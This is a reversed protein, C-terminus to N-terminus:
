KLILFNEIKYSLYRRASYEGKDIQEDNAQLDWKDEKRLEESSKILWKGMKEADKKNSFVANIETGHGYCFKFSMPDKKREVYETVLIFVGTSGIKEKDVRREGSLDIYEGSIDPYARAITQCEYGVEAEPNMTSLIKALEKNKM